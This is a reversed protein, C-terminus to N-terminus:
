DVIKDVWCTHQGNGLKLSLNTAGMPSIRIVIIKENKTGFIMGFNRFKYLGRASECDCCASLKGGLIFNKFDEAMKGGDFIDVIKGQSIRFITNWLGKIHEKQQWILKISIAFCREGKDTTELGFVGFCFNKEVVTYGMLINEDIEMWYGNQRDFWNQGFNQQEGNARYNQGRGQNFNGQGQNFNGRGQNFNGQGQNLMGQGRFFNERGQNSNGQGWNNQIEREDDDSMDDAWRGRKNQHEDAREDKRERERLIEDATEVKNIERDKLELRMKMAGAMLNKGKLGKGFKRVYQVLNEGGFWGLQYSNEGYTDLNRGLFELFRQMKDTNEDRKGAGDLLNWRMITNERIDMKEVGKRVNEVKKETEIGTKKENLNEGKEIGEMKVEKVTVNMGADNNEVPKEIIMEGNFALGAGSFIKDLDGEVTETGALLDKQEGKKKKREVRKAENARSGQGKEGSNELKGSAGKIKAM